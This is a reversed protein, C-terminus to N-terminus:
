TYFLLNKPINDTVLEIQRVDSYKNLVANLLAKGVGQSQMNLSVLLDQILIVTYGDGVVRIIGVLESDEYAALVLLSNEFGQKLLSPNNTYASWGVSLYLAMIEEENYKKYEKIEM